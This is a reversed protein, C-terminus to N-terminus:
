KARLERLFEQIESLRSDSARDSSFAIFLLTEIHRLAEDFTAEVGGLTICLDNYFKKDLNFKQVLRDNVFKEARKGGEFFEDKYM